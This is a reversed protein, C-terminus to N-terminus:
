GQEPKIDAARIVRTWKAVDEAILRGFDAPSGSLTVASLNAVRAKIQPDALGENVTKNLVATVENPTNAPVGLGIWASAEYGPLTEKLAPVDPLLDLRTATTLALARLKGSRIQEISSPLNDFAAQVQGAMLDVLMPGSGRYPVHTMKIGAMMKFLEGALHGATGTGFSALTIQNPNARAYAILEAANKVPLSPHVELVLPFRAVGAVPDIDHIFDYNHKEYLAVNIANTSSAMLLTHGDAPAHVVTEAALQTSAGPKNEVVFPQNLRQALWEGFIRAGLDTVGGPPFGVIMRVPRTPYDSAAAFHPLASAAAAASISQLFLRRPLKM